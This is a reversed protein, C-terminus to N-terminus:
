SPLDGMDTSQDTSQHATTVSSAIDVPENSIHSSLSNDDDSEAIGEQHVAM